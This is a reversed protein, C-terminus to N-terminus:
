PKLRRQRVMDANRLQEEACYAAYALAVSPALLGVMVFQAYLLAQAWLAAARWVAPPRLALAVGGGHMRANEAVRVGLHAWGNDSVNLLVSRWHNVTAGAAGAAIGVGSFALLRLGLATESPFPDGVWSLTLLGILTRVALHWGWAVGEYWQPV